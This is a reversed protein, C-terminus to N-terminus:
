FSRRARRSRRPPPLSTSMRKRKSRRGRPESSMAATTTEGAERDKILKEHWNKYRTWATVDAGNNLAILYDKWRIRLAITDEELETCDADPDLQKSFAVFSDRIKGLGRKLMSKVADMNLDPLLTGHAMHEADENDLDLFAEDDGKVWVLFEVSRIHCWNHDAITISTCPPFRETIFEDLPLAEDLISLTQSAVSNEDPCKYPQAECVLGLVAMKTHPYAAITTKLKRIAHAKDESCACEGIFPVLVIRTPGSAPTVTICIDPTVSKRKVRLSSNMHVMPFILDEDYSMASISQGLALKLCDFPAEHIASPMEVLLSNTNYDYTLRPKSTRGTEELVEEIAEFERADIGHFEMTRGTEPPLKTLEKLVNQGNATLHHYRLSQKLSDDDDDDQEDSDDGDDESDDCLPKLSPNTTINVSTKHVEHFPTSTKPGAACETKSMQLVPPKPANFMPVNGTSKVPLTRPLTSTNRTQYTKYHETLSGTSAVTMTTM